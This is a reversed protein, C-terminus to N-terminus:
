LLHFHQSLLDKCKLWINITMLKIAYIVLVFVFVCFAWLEIGTSWASLSTECPTVYVRLIVDGEPIHSSLLASCHGATLVRGTIATQNTQQRQLTTIYSLFTTEWRSPFLLKHRAQVNPAKREVCADRSFIEVDPSSMFEQERRLPFGNM